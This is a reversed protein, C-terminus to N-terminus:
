EAGAETPATKKWMERVAAVVEDVSIEAMCAHPSADDYSTAARYCEGDIVNICPGRPMRSIAPNERFCPQCALGKSINTNHPYGAASAQTSGWLIVGPVRRGNGREDQWFYNTLHNCFSDIGIHMRANAVLAISQALTREMSEDILAMPIPGRAGLAQFVEDWREQPWQKYKSWGARTQFTAYGKKFSDMLDPCKPRRLTLAPLSDEHADNNFVVYDTTGMMERAFYQLLHWRMPKEPYGEELPYGVLDIVREYQKRWAPLTASDMVADAGAAAIITGLADPAALAANCFYHVDVGPNAEKFAPLLNLTMLIDGIAGPRHLAIRPRLGHTIAPARPPELKRQLSAERAAWDADPRGILRTAEQSWALAQALNGLHEHCWSILRAPGDGYAFPERWLQTQPIPKGLARTAEDIAEAYRKQAYRLYAVDLRFEQWDPAFELGERLAAECGADDGGSRLCRARYLLAFLYEDRYAGPGYGLRIGYWLAADAWCAGDKHTNALYFATRENPEAAYQALLIRMNRANSDEGASAHPTADHAICCDNLVIAPHEMVLYEHVWGKFRAKWKAPYLRYHVQRVGGGLEIWIGYHADPLYAARRIALPTKIEDDCDMWLVHSDGFAEAMELAFNRAKAFNALRWEGPKDPNPESAGLYVSTAAGAAHAVKVSDDTSGTDVYVIRDAVGALSTLLRPLDRAENRGIIAACISPPKM